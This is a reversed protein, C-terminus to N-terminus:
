TRAQPRTRTLPCARTLTLGLSHTRGPSPGLTVTLAGSASGLHSNIGLTGTVDHVARLAATGHLPASAALGRLLDQRLLSM